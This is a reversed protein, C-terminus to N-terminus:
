QQLRATAAAIVDSPLSMVDVDAIWANFADQTMGAISAATVQGVPGGGGRAQAELKAVGQQVAENFEDLAAKFDEVSQAANMRIFAAEAKQGEFDTIAGGGKLLQRAQLFAGGKLQDMMGQVRAADATVNPLRSDVPGLMKELYPDNKLAEIQSSVQDALGSASPLKTLADVVAEGAGKGLATGQATEFPKLGMDATVGEPMATVVATGDKGLQMIVVNGDKDRGLIPNLGFEAGGGPTTLNGTAIYAAYEPTGPRLGAEAALAKRETLTKPVDVQPNQLMELELRERELKLQDMESMPKPPTAQAVLLNRIEPPLMPNSLLAAIEATMGGTPQAGTYQASRKAVNEPAPRLFQRLIADAASARDPAAMIAGGAAAEPGQLEQMLFDLQVNEDSAPVGRQAAFRELAVRRPGTWQALGFGGRSGPVMPAAENIGANLGSEDQFNVVFADAVHEPLGREILGARIRMSADNVAPRGLAAMTDDAIGQPSNPDAGLGTASIGPTSIGAMGGGYGGGLAAAIQAQMEAQLEEERTGARKERRRAGLARGVAALGEGVNRPTAMNAQRLSDAIAKQRQLEEYTWPTNGGFIFSQMGTM